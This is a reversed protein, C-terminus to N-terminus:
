QSALLCPPHLAQHQRPPSPMPKPAPLARAHATYLYSPRPPQQEQKLHSGYFPQSLHYCCLWYITLPARCPSLCHASGGQISLSPHLIFPHGPVIITYLMLNLVHELNIIHLLGVTSRIIPDRKTGQNKSRPLSHRVRTSCRHERHTLNDLPGVTHLSQSPGASRMLRDPLPTWDQLGHCRRPIPFTASPQFVGPGTYTFDLCHLANHYRHRSRTSSFPSVLQNCTNPRNHGLGAQHSKTTPMALWALSAFEYALFSM